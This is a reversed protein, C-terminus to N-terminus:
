LYSVGRMSEIMIRVEGADYAKQALKLNDIAQGADMLVDELDITEAELDDLEQVKLSYNDESDDDFGEDIIEQLKFIKADKEKLEARKEAVYKEITEIMQTIMPFRLWNPQNHDFLLEGSFDQSIAVKGQLVLEILANNIAFKYDDPESVTEEALRRFLMDNKFHLNFLEQRDNADMM